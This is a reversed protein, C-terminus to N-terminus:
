ARKLEDPTATQTVPIHFFRNLGLAVALLLLGLSVAPLARLPWRPRYRWHVQHNGTPVFCAKLAVNARLVPVAQGDISCEWGPDWNDAVILLSADGSTELTQEDPTDVRSIVQAPTKGLDPVSGALCAQEFPKWDSREAWRNEAAADPCGEVRVVTWCRQVPGLFQWRFSGQDPQLVWSLGWSKLLPQDPRRPPLPTSYFVLKPILKTAGLGYQSYLMGRFFSEDVASHPIMATARGQTLPYALWFLPPKPEPAYNVVLRGPGPPPLPMGSFTEPGAYVGGLWQIMVSFNVFLAWGSLTWALKPRKQMLEDLGLAAAQTWALAACFIFRHPGRLQQTFPVVKHLLWLLVGQEGLMQLGLILAIAAIARHPRRRCAYVVLALVALSFGPMLPYGGGHEWPTPWIALTEDSFTMLAERPTLRYAESFSTGGVLRRSGHASWELLPFWPFSCALTAGAFVLASVLGRRWRSEGSQAVQWFFFFPLSLYQYYLQSVACGVIQWAAGAGLGVLYRRRGTRLWRDHCALILFMAVLASKVPPTQSTRLCDGCFTYFGAALWACQASSRTRLFYYAATLLALDSLFGFFRWAQLPPLCVFYLNSPDFWGTQANALRPMGLFPLPDWNSWAEHGNGLNYLRYKDAWFLSLVDEAGLTKGQFLAPAHLAVLAVLLLILAARGDKLNM